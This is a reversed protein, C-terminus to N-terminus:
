GPPERMRRPGVDPRQPPALRGTASVVALSSPGVLVPNLRLEALEPLDDAIQGVLVLLRELAPLDVPESGRYGLLLPALAISRALSAAEPMNMPALRYARDGLLESALGGLGFSLVPGFSADQIASIEIAVGRPAMRQVLLETPEGPALRSTLLTYAARMEERGPLDLRVDRLDAMHRLREATTKLVVPYGLADATAVAEDADAVPVAEWLEIGYCALLAGLPGAALEGGAPNAELGRAVLARAGAVDTPGAHAVSAASGAGAPEVTLRQRWRAYRTAHALARVANEPAPYSPVSGREPAGDEGARRLQEPLGSFALFTTLVPKTAGASLTVLARAVDANPAYLPPVFVTVISDIEDDVLLEALAAGFEDASATTGLDIPERPHLGERVCADKALLGLSDSNGIIAVRDGAPLPQYALLQAVDFLQALDDVRIVGVQNLLDDVADDPISLATVAHGLPIGQTSRGGRVVVVPKTAAIRRALRSFKRPNGFSELYLLVVETAPDEEWYQLLDNGSVDARNGASVFTSLGIGRQVVQELIAIGLAGSQSFSGVRGRGPTLAALTANLRIAPDTNVIGLANPGVVRMGGARAQAVLQAQRERGTGGAEAFGSSVVVLGRVRKRACQAVVAQVADAPVAVIALDVDGPVDLISPYARVSAVSTATPHVPYVPGTFEGDMINRLAMHGVTFSRPSAGIVAVSRPALVRAISRAEARHERSRMVEVTTATPTIDLSLHVVGEGYSREASYGADRFVDLMRTNAPLVEAYFRRVGREQACAAIHELLVSGFGRGQHDDRVVFAVEAEAEAVGDARGRDYRVVAVIDGDILAVLAVRDIYDVQTFREVDRPTLHPYPAFFRLYVTETSLEEHFAVLGEADGPRIPRLHATGGDALVVDAEWHPPYPASEM